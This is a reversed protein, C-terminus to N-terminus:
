YKLIAFVVRRNLARGEENENSAIPQGEGYGIAKLQKTPINQAQLYYMVAQAREQSLRLNDEHTGINDTHGAIEIEMKPHKQLINALLQLEKYSEPKLIAKAFDFYIHKLTIVKGEKLPTLQTAFPIKKDKAPEITEIIPYYGEATITLEYTLCDQLDFQYQGNKSQVTGKNDPNQLSQYSIEAQIPKKNEEDSIRGQYRVVDPCDPLQEVLVDDIFYYACKNDNYFKDRLVVQTNANSYFLGLVLVQYDQEPIFVGETKEWTNHQLVKEAKIHAQTPITAFDNTFAIGLNNIAFASYTHAVQTMFSVKYRRGKQLPKSLAIAMLENPEQNQQVSAIGACGRGTSPILNYMMYNDPIKVTQSKACSHFLDPTAQLSKWGEAKEIQGYDNPCETTKEFSGNPVLNQAAATSICLLLLLFSRM